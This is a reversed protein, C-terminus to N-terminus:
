EVLGTESPHNKLNDIKNILKQRMGEDTVQPLMDEIKKIEVLRAERDAKNIAEVEARKAEMILQEQSKQNRWNPNVVKKSELEREKAAAMEEQAKKLELEKADAAEQAKQQESVQLNKEKERDQMKADITHERETPFVMETERIEQTKPVTVEKAVQAEVVGAILLLCSALFSKIFFPM